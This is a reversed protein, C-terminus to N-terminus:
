DKSKGERARLTEIFYDNCEGFFVHILIERNFVVNEKLLLKYKEFNNTFQKALDKYNM